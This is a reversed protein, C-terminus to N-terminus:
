TFSGNRFTGSTQLQLLCIGCKGNLKVKESWWYETWFASLDLPHLTGIMSRLKKVIKIEGIQM